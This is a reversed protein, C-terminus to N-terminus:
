PAIRSIEWTDSQKKEFLFRDNLRHEGYLFFEIEHPELSYGTWHDPVPITTDEFDKLCQDFSNILEDKNKLKQGQRSIYTAAQSLRPRKLCYDEVIERQMEEVKGSIRVQRGSKHWYFAMAAFPNESLDKSKPSLRNTFFNFKDQKLGKFLLYRVSPIGKRSSTALSFASPNEETTEAEEYWKRFSKFPCEYLSYSQIEKNGPLTLTM